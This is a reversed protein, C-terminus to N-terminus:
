RCKGGVDPDRDTDGLRAKVTTDVDPTKGMGFDNVCTRDDNMGCRDTDKILGNVHVHRRSMRLVPALVAVFVIGAAMWDIEYLFSPVIIYIDRMLLSAIGLIGLLMPILMTLLMVLPMFFALMPVALAM